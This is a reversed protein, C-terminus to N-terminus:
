SITPKFPLNCCTKAILAPEQFQYLKQPMGFESFIIILSKVVFKCFFKLIIYPLNKFISCKSFVEDFKYRIEIFSQFTM